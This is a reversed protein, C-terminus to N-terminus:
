EGRAYRQLLRVIEDTKLEPTTRLESAGVVTNAWAMHRKMREVVGPWERATHRSPDPPAHCQSCATMFIQGSAAKLAPHSDAIEKQGHKQLYQVLTLVEADTPAKVHAMMDKMVEGMNGNGRMRWVMREVIPKWREATHMQPNPLYHCQVCYRATLRAGESGPEPLDRPTVAPPLIRELMAGHPSSAWLTRRDIGDNAAAHAAPMFWTIGQWLLVCAIIFLVYRLLSRYLDASVRKQVRLGLYLGALAVFTLPVNALAQSIRIEGALALTGAQVMKGGLFCLNLIQTMVTTELGLLTFYILLPATSQNVTGSFFGGILGFIMASVQRKRALWTLDLHALWGQYLYAFIALALLLRIPQQPAIVLLRAGLYSGVLVWAAVPWYRGLSAGWNGGRAVSIVNVTFNPLLNLIIATKVDTMLVLLPTSVSPFGFGLAGQTIGAAIM